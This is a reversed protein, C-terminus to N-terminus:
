HNQPLGEEAGKWEQEAAEAQKHDEWLKKQKEAEHNLETKEKKKKKMKQKERWEESQEEEQEQERVRVKKRGEEALVSDGERQKATM